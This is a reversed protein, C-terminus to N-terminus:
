YAASNSSDKLINRSWLLSDPMCMKVGLWKISLIGPFFHKIQPTPILCSSYLLKRQSLVIECFSVWYFTTQWFFVWHSLSHSNVVSPYIKTTCLVTMTIWRNSNEAGCLECLLNSVRRRLTTPWAEQPLSCCCIKHCLDWAWMLLQDQLQVEIWNDGRKEDIGSEGWKWCADERKPSLHHTSGFANGLPVRSGRWWMGRLRRYKHRQYDCNPLCYGFSTGLYHWVHTALLSNEIKMKYCGELRKRM